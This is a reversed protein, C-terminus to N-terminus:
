QGAALRHAEDPDRSVLISRADERSLRQVQLLGAASGVLVVIRAFFTEAQRRIKGVAHEFEPDNRGPAARTDIVLGFRRHEPRLQGLADEYADVLSTTSSTSAKRRLTVVGADADEEISLHENDVLTQGM